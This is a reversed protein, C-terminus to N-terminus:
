LAVRKATPMFRLLGVTTFAAQELSVENPIPVVFNRPLFNYEAHNALNAGAAAVRQGISFDATGEGVETVYGSLSYGLPTLQQLRSM